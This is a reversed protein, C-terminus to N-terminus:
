LKRSWHRRRLAKYRGRHFILPNGEGQNANVVEGVFITHDGGAYREVVRCEIWGVNGELIPAGTKATSYKLGRFRQEQSRGNEAFIKALRRMKETLINVAFVGSRDIIDHTRTRKDACFLLLMPDLSVSTIANATMGALRGKYATTVITVGTAFHGMVHRYQEVTVAMGDGAGQAFVLSRWENRRVPASSVKRPM